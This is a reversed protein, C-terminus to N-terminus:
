DKLTKYAGYLAGYPLVKKAAHEAGFKAVSKMKGGIDQKSLYERIKEMRSDAPYSFEGPTEMPTEIPARKQAMAPLQGMIEKVGQTTPNAADIMARTQDADAMAQQGQDYTKGFRDMYGAGPATTTAAVIGSGIKSGIDALTKGGPMQEAVSSGMLMSDIPNPSPESEGSSQPQAGASARKAAVRKMLVQRRLENIDADPM